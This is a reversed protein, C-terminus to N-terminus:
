SMDRLANEQHSISPPPSLGTYATNDGPCALRHQILLSASCLHSLLGILLTGTHDSEAETGVKLEQESPIHGPFTLQFQDKRGWNSQDHHKDCCSANKVNQKMSRGILFWESIHATFAQKHTLDMKVIRSRLPSLGQNTAVM